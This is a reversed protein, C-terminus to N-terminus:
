KKIIQNKLVTNAWQRFRIASTGSLRFGVAIVVELSYLTMLNESNLISIKQVNTQKDLEEDRFVQKIYKSAVTRDVGFINAIEIQRLWIQGNTTKTNAKLSGNPNQSIISDNTQDTIQNSSSDTNTM